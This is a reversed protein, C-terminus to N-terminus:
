PTFVFSLQHIGQPASKPILVDAATLGAAMARRDAEDPLRLLTGDPSPELRIVEEPSIGPDRLM